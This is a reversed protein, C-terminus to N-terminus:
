FAATRYFVEAEKYDGDGPKTFTALLGQDRAAAALASVEGPPTTDPPGGGGAGNFTATDQTRHILYTETGLVVGYYNPQSGDTVWARSPVPESAGADTTMFLGVYHEEEVKTTKEMYYSHRKIDRKKRENAAATPKFNTGSDVVKFQDAGWGLSDLTGPTANIFTYQSLSRFDVWLKGAPSASVATNYGTTTVGYSQASFPQYSHMPIVVRWSADAKRIQAYWLMAAWPLGNAATPPIFLAKIKCITARQPDTYFRKYAERIDMVVLTMDATDIPKTITAVKWALGGADNLMDFTNEPDSEITGNNNWKRYQQGGDNVCASSYRTYVAGTDFILPVLSQLWSRQLANNYHCTSCTTTTGQYLGAPAQLLVDGRHIIQFSGRDLHFHGLWYNEKCKTYFSNSDDYEWHDTQGQPASRYGFIGPPKMLKSRAPKTTANKPHTAPVNARDLYIVDFIMNDAFPSQFSDYLDYMWRLMEGGQNGGTGPYKTALIAFQWRMEIPMQPASQKNTDGHARWDEGGIYQDWIMYQWIKSAWFAEDAFTDQNTGKDMVWLWFLEGFLGLQLYSGGKEGGDGVYQYRALKIRGDNAGAGYWFALAKDIIAQAGSDYGFLALGCILGVMQDNGSWGDMQERPDNSMNNAYSKIAAALTSKESSTLVDFCTDFTISLSIACWHEFANSPQPPNQALYIAASIAKSWKAGRTNGEEIWGWLLLVMFKLYNDDDLGISSDSDDDLSNARPTITNDWLTKWASTSNTRATLDTLDDDTFFIRPRTSRITIGSPVTM